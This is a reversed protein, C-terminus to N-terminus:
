TFLLYIIIREQAQRNPHITHPMVNYSSGMPEQNYVHKLFRILTYTFFGFFELNDRPFPLLKYGFFEIPLLLFTPLFLFM